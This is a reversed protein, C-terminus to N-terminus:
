RILGAAVLTECIGRCKSIDFRDNTRIGSEMDIWFDSACVQEIACVSEVVNDQNLGGAYGFFSTLPEIWDTCLIGRGASGDQFGQINPLHGYHNLLDETGEHLQIIIQKDDPFQLERSFKKTKPINFQIRDFLSFSDGLMNEVPKWDGTKILDHAIKGCLHVAMPIGLKKYGKLIVPLPYRNGAYRNDTLLYVFEVFPYQQYLALADKPKTWRDIGSFAVRKLLTIM